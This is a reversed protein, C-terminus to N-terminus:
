FTSGSRDEPTRDGTQAVQETVLDSLAAAAALLPGAGTSRELTKVLARAHPGIHLHCFAAAANRVTRAAEEDGSAIAYAEKFALYGLFDAEVAIHDPPNGSGPRFAFAEYFASLDALVRGPDRGQASAAARPSVAGGPGFLALYRGETWGELVRAGDQEFEAWGCTELLASVEQKWGARPSELLLGLLRLRVTRELKAKVSDDIEKM